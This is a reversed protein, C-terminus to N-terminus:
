EIIGMLRYEFHAQKDTEPPLKDKEDLFGERIDGVTKRISAGLAGALNTDPDADIALTVKRESIIRVILAAVNTKGTGGKGSVVITTM